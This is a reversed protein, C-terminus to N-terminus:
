APHDCGERQYREEEYRHRHSQRQRVGQLKRALEPEILWSIPRHLCDVIRTECCTAEDALKTPHHRKDGKHRDRGRCSFPEPPGGRREAEDQDTVGCIPNDRMWNIGSPQLVRVQGAHALHEEAHKRCWICVPLVHSIYPLIGVYRARTEM